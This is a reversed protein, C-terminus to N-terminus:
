RSVACRDHRDLRGADKPNSRERRASAIVLIAHGAVM